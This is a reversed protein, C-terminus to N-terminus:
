IHCLQNCNGVQDFYADNNLAPIFKPIFGFKKAIIRTVIFDSGGLPNYTVYPQLGFFSIKLTKGFPEQMRSPCSGKIEEAFM